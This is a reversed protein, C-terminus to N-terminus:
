LTLNIMDSFEATSTELEERCFISIKYKEASCHDRIRKNTKNTKKGLPSRIL